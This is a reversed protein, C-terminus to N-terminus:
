KNIKKRGRSIVIGKHNATTRRGSLDYYRITEEDAETREIADTTAVV